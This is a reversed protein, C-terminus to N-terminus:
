NQAAEVTKRRLNRGLLCGFGILGLVVGAPAPVGNPPTVPPPVITFPVKDGDPPKLGQYYATNTSRFRVSFPVGPSASLEKSVQDATLGGLGTGKLTITFTASQGAALGKSIEATTVTHLQSKDTSFAYDFEGGQLSTANAAATLFNFNSNSSSGTASTINLNPVNIGFGTIYGYQVAAGTSTTNTLSVTITASTGNGATTVSINGSYSVPTSAAGGNGVFYVTDARGAAPSLVFAAIALAIARTLRSRM